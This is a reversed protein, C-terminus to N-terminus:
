HFRDEDAKFRGIVRAVTVPQNPENSLRTSNVDLFDNLVSVPQALGSAQSVTGSLTTFKGIDFDLSAKLENLKTAAKKAEESSQKIEKVIAEIGQVDKKKAELLKTTEDAISKVSSLLNSAEARSNNLFDHTRQLDKKSQESIQHNKWTLFGLIVALIGMFTALIAIVGILINTSTDLKTFLNSYNQGAQSYVFDRLNNFESTSVIPVSGVEGTIRGGITAINEM